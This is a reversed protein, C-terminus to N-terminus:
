IGFSLGKFKKNFKVISKNSKSASGFGIKTWAPHERYDVDMLIYDSSHASKTNFEDEGIKITLKKYKPHIDKQM